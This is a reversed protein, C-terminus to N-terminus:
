WNVPLSTAATGVPCCSPKTASESSDACPHEGHRQATRRRRGRAHERVRDEASGCVSTACRHHTGVLRGHRCRQPQRRVGVGGAFCSRHRSPRVSAPRCASCRAQRSRRVVVHRDVGAGVDRRAPATCRRGPVAAAVASRGSRQRALQRRRRQRRAGVAVVRDRWGIWLTTTRASGLRHRRTPPLRRRDTRARRANAALCPRRPHHSRRQQGPSLRPPHRPVLGRRVRSTTAKTRAPDHAPRHCRRSCRGVAGFASRRVM